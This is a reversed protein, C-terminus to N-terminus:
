QKSFASVSLSMRRFAFRHWTTAFAADSRIFSLWARAADAHAAGPVMAASGIIAQGDYITRRWRRIFKSPEDHSRHALPNEGTVAECRALGVPSTLSLPATAEIVL